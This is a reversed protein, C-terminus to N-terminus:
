TGMVGTIEKHKHAMVGTVENDQDPQLYPVPLRLLHSLVNLEYVHEITGHTCSCTDYAAEQLSM